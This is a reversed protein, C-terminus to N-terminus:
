TGSSVNFTEPNYDAITDAVAIMVPRVKCDDTQCAAPKLRFTQVAAGEEPGSMTRDFNRFAGRWGMSGVDTIRGSLAAIDGPSGNSRM